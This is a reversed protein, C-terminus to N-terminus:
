HQEADSPMRPDRGAARGGPGVDRRHALHLEEEVFHVVGGGIQRRVDDGVDARGRDLLDARVAHRHAIHTAALPRAAPPEAHM